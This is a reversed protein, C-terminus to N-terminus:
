LGEERNAGNKKRLSLRLFNELDQSLFRGRAPLHRDVLKEDKIWDQITRKSADFIGAVDALTWVGKMRLGNAALLAELLPYRGIEPKPVDSMQEPDRVPRRHIPQEQLPDM